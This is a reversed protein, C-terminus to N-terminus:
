KVVLIVDDRGYKIERLNAGDPMQNDMKRGDAAWGHCAQCNGKQLFIRMGEAIDAADPPQARAAPALQLAVLFALAAGVPGRESRTFGRRITWSSKEAFGRM